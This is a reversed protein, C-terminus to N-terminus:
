QDDLTHSKKLQETLEKIMKQQEECGDSIWEASDLGDQPQAFDVEQDVIKFRRNQILQRLHRLYEDMTSILKGYNSQQEPSLRKEAKTRAANLEDLTRKVRSYRALWDENLCKKLPQRFTKADLHAGFGDIMQEVPYHASQALKADFDPWHIDFKDPHFETKEYLKAISTVMKRTSHNTTSSSQFHGFPGKLEEPRVGHTYVFIRQQERRSFLAGVEFHMWPSELNQPTLCVVGAKAEHLNSTLANFWLDGKEIDSSLFFTVGPLVQNLFSRTDEAFQKSEDGSWCIFIAM